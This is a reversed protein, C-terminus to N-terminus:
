MCMIRLLKNLKVIGASKSFVGVEQLNLIYLVSISDNLKTKNYYQTTMRLLLLEYCIELLCSINCKFRKNYLTLIKKM